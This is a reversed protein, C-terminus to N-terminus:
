DQVKRRSAYGDMFACVAGRVNTEIETDTPPPQVNWIVRRLMWGSCLELFQEVATLPDARRLAGKKMAKAFLESAMQYGPRASEPRPSVGVRSNGDRWAINM